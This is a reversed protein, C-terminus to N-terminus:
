ATKAEQVKHSLSEGVRHLADNARDTMRGMAEPAAQIRHALDDRLERGSRPAVLLGLSTGVLVGVGFLALAPVLYDVNHRKTELGLMGLLDDKDLSKLKEYNM